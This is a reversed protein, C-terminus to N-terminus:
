NQNKLNEADEQSIYNYECMADVVIEQRQKALNSHSNLAYASPANPLGALLTQEYTSLEMPTKNFYGRSAQGIGTYGNGYYSINLYLELIDDKSYLKELKSAVFVEAVKRTLKKEQSFYMNKALQQTITSGGEVLSMNKIDTIVARGISIIDIPGHNYYRHDETAVVANKLDKPVQSFTTYYNKSKINEVKQDIPINNVANKYMTYGNKITIGVCILLVILIVLLIKKIINSLSNKKKKM